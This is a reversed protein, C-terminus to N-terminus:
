KAELLELLMEDLIEIEERGDALEDEYRRVRMRAEDLRAELAVEVTKIEELQRRDGYDIERTRILEDLKEEEQEKMARMHVLEGELGEVDGEASRLRREAPELRRERLEIRKLLLDVRQHHQVTELLVVLRDLAQRIGAVDEDLESTPVDASTLTVPLALFLAILVATSRRKMM